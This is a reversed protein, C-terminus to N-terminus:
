RIYTLKWYGQQREIDFLATSEKGLKEIHCLNNHRHYLLSDEKMFRVFILKPKISSSGGSNTPIGWLLCLFGPFYHRNYVMTDTGFATYYKGSSM